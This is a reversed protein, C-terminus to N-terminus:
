KETGKKSNLNDIDERRPLRSKFVFTDFLYLGGALFPLFLLALIEESFLLIEDFWVVVATGGAGTIAAPKWYRRLFSIRHAQTPLPSMPAGKVTDAFLQVDATVFWRLRAVLFDTM